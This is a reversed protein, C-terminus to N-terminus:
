HSMGDKKIGEVKQEIIEIRHLMDRALVEGETSKMRMLDDIGALLLSHLSEKIAEEEERSSFSPATQMQSVLFSLNVVQSPEYGLGTAIGEWGRKIEQLQHLHSEYLRNSEKDPQVHLRVTVQGRDIAASVWKRMEVDFRLFDKPLYLSLDFMKRNVSHIEIIFRGFPTDHTARSYATMSKIM